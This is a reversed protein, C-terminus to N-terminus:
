ALGLTQAIALAVEGPPRTADVRFDAQAYLPAREEFLARMAAEGERALPREQPDRALRQWCREFPAALHCSRVDSRGRVVALAREWAGAGLAVVVPDAGRLQETLTAVEADRFAAWGHRDVFSAAGEPAVLRDLDIHHVFSAPYRRRLEELVTSKGSGSFGVLLLKVASREMKETM